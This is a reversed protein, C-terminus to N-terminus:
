GLSTRGGGGDGLEPPLAQEANFYRKGSMRLAVTDGLVLRDAEGFAVREGPEIRRAPGSGRVVVTGNGSGLDVAYAQPNGGGPKEEMSILLHVRSVRKVGPPPDLEEAGLNIGHRLTGRGLQVADGVSVPFRLFEGASLGGPLDPATADSVVFSRTTGRPGLEELLAGCTCVARATTRSVSPWGLLGDPWRMATDCGLARCRWHSRLVRKHDSHEPDLRQLHKLDKFEIAQSVRYGPAPM